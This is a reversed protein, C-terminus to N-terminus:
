RKIIEFIRKKARAIFFEFVKESIEANREHM